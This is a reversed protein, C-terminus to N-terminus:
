LCKSLRDGPLYFLAGNPNPLHERKEPRLEIWSQRNLDEMNKLNGIEALFHVGEILIAGLPHM